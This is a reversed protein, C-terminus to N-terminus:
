VIKIREFDVKEDLADRIELVPEIVVVDDAVREFQDRHSVLRIDRRGPELREREDLVQHKAEGGVEAAHWM